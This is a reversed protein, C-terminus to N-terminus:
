ISYGIYNNGISLRIYKTLRCNLAHWLIFALFINNLMGYINYLTPTTNATRLNSYKLDKYNSNVMCADWNLEDINPQDIYRAKQKSYDSWSAVGTNWSEWILVIQDFSDLYM